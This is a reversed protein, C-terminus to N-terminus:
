ILIRGINRILQGEKGDAYYTCNINETNFLLTENGLLFCGLVGACQKFSGALKRIDVGQCVSVM